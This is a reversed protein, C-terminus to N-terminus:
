KQGKRETTYLEVRGDTRDYTRYVTLRKTGEEIEDEGHYEPLRVVYCAYPQLGQLGSQYFESQNISTKYAYVSTKTETPEPVGIENLAYSKGILSIKAVSNM